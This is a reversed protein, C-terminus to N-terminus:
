SACDRHRHPSVIVHIVTHVIVHKDQTDANDLIFDVTSNINNGAHLYNLSAATRRRIYETDVLKPMSDGICETTPHVSHQSDYIYSALINGISAPSHQSDAAPHICRTLRQTQSTTLSCVIKYAVQAAAQPIM